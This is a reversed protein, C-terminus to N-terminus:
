PEKRTRSQDKLRALAELESAYRYLRAAETQNPYPQDVLNDARDHNDQAWTRLVEPAQHLVYPPYEINM